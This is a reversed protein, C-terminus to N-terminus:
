NKNTVSQGTFDVVKNASADALDDTGTAAYDVTVTYGSTPAKDLTLTVTNGNVSAGTVNITEPTSGDTSNVTFASPDAATGSLAENMTLTLTNGTVQASSVTPATADSVSVNSVKLEGTANSALDRVNNLTVTVKDKSTTGAKPKVNITITNTSQSVSDVDYGSVAFSSNAFNNSMNESFTVVVQDGLGDGNTDKLVVNDNGAPTKAITPAAKDKFLTSSLAVTDDGDVDAALTTGLQTTVVGPALQINGIEDADTGFTGKPFEATIKTVAVKGSGDGKNVLQQSTTVKDAPTGAYLIKSANVNSVYGEVYFEITDPSVLNFQAGSALLDTDITSASTGGKLVAPADEASAAANYASFGTFNGAADAVRGIQVNAKSFPAATYDSPLTIVVSKNDNGLSLTAGSIDALNKSGIAYLNKNLISGEGDTRMAESYQIYIKTNNTGGYVVSQVTPATADAVGISLTTEPLKNQEVSVDKIKDAKIKLSYSGELPSAPTLEYVLNDTNAKLTASNIGIVKGTSDTLEYASVDNAGSVEESFKVEIKGTDKNFSATATPATNDADVTFDLSSAAFKNDYADVIQKQTPDAYSIILKHAGPTVPLGFDVIIGNEKSPDASAVGEFISNGAYDLSYKVNSDDFQSVKKNFEVYVKDNVVKTVKATIATTDSSVKFPVDQKEVKFGAYDTLGNGVNLTYDGVALKSNTTIRVVNPALKVDDVHTKASFSYSGKNITFANTLDANTKATVPESFVVDFETPSVQNIEKITPITVDAVKVKQDKVEPVVTTKDSALKVNKVSVTLEEQNLFGSDKYAQELTIIVSKGDGQLQATAGTGDLLDNGSSDKVSYNALTEASEKDVPKNFTVEIQNANIASVSEVKPAVAKVVVNVSAKLDTGDVTGELKYTDPKSTDLKSTDWKVSAEKESKDSYVVTVKEPLKVDELKTGEDVTIDDLAKISEAKPAEINMAKYLMNAFDGRTIKENTGYTSGKGKTIGAGYLAEVYPKFTSTLDTFPTEKAYDKLNYANVLIKAMAGRTLPADPDFKDKSVGNIIGEAVLANVAGKIRSNVDKFGADPANKTDLGKAKAIIVAADGRTLNKYTGFETKSIGSVINKSYLAGVAEAYNKNVDGFPLNEAAFAPTVATAVLTATAATAVFKRYSKPQYAM